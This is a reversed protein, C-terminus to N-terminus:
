GGLALTPFTEYFLRCLRLDARVLHYQRVRNPTPIVSVEILEQLFQVPRAGLSPHVIYFRRTVHAIHTTPDGPTPTRTDPVVHIDVFWRTSEM